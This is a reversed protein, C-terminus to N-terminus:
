EKLRQEKIYASNLLNVMYHTLDLKKAVETVTKGKARLKGVQQQLAYKPNSKKAEEKAKLEERFQTSGAKLYVVPRELKKAEELVQEAKQKQARQEAIQGPSLLYSM